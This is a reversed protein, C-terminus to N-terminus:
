IYRNQLFLGGSKLATNSCFLGPRNQNGRSTPIGSTARRKFLPQPLPDNESELRGVASAVRKAKQPGTASPTLQKIGSLQANM